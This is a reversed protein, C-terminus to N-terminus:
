VKNVKQKELYNELYEDIENVIIAVGVGIVLVLLLEELDPSVIGSFSSPGGAIQKLPMEISQNSSTIIKPKVSLSPSGLLGSNYDALIKNRVAIEAFSIITRTM